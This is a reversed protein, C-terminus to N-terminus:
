LRDSGTKIIIYNTYVYEQQLKLNCCEYSM